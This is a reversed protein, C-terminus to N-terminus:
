WREWHGTSDARRRGRALSGSRKDPAAHGIAIVGLPTVDAPIGLEGRLDDLQWTGVLASGLGENVAALLVLMVACGGDMVWFPVPWEIEKGEDDLKDQEQYREHYTAERYCPVIHVPAQSLFPDFGQALYGDEGCLAAIRRRTAADTVVVFDQGQSNGASPGRSASDLIREITERAVPESTFHRTMRRKKVVQDFDM